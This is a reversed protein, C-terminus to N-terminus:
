TSPLFPMLLSTGLRDIFNVVVVMWFATPYEHYIDVHRQCQKELV